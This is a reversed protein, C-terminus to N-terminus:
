FVLTNILLIDLQFRYSPICADISCMYDKGWSVSYIDSKLWFNCAKYGVFFNFNSMKLPKNVSVDGLVFTLSKQRNKSWEQCEHCLAAETKWRCHLEYCFCSSTFRSFISRCMYVLVHMIICVSFLGLWVAKTLMEKLTMNLYIGNVRESQLM